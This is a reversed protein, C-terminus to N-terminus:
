KILGLMRLHKDETKRRNRWNAYWEKNDMM